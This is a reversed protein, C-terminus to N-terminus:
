TFIAAALAERIELEASDPLHSAISLALYASELPSAMRKFEEVVDQYSSRGACVNYAVLKALIQVQNRRQEGSITM